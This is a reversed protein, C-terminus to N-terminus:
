SRLMLFTSCGWRPDAGLIVIANLSETEMVDRIKGEERLMGLSGAILPFRFHSLAREIMMLSPLNRKFAVM